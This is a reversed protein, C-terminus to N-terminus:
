PLVCFEFHGVAIKQHQVHTERNRNWRRDTTPPFIYCNRHHFVVLFCFFLKAVNASGVTCLKDDVTIIGKKSIWCFVWEVIEIYRKNKVILREILLPIQTPTSSAIVIRHSAFRYHLTGFWDIKVWNKQSIWDWKHSHYLALCNRLEDILDWTRVCACFIGVRFNTRAIM